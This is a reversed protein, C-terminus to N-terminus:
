GSSFSPSSHSGSSHSGPLFVLPARIGTLLLPKESLTTCRLPPFTVELARGRGGTWRGRERGSCNPGLVVPHPQALHPTLPQSCVAGGQPAHPGSFPSSLTGEPHHPLALPLLDSDSGPAATCGLMPSSSGPAPHPTAPLGQPHSVALTPPQNGVPTSLIFVCIVMVPSKESKSFPTVFM